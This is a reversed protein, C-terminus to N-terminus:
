CRKTSYRAKLNISSIVLLGLSLISTSFSFILRFDFEAPPVFSVQCCASIGLTDLKTITRGEDEDEEQSGSVFYIM